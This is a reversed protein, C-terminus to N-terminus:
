VMNYWWKTYKWRKSHILQSDHFIWICVWPRTYSGSLFHNVVRLYGHSSSAGSAPYSEMKTVLPFHKTSRSMILNHTLKGQYGNIEKMAPLHIKSFWFCPIEYTKWLNKMTKGWEWFTFDSDCSGRVPEPSRNPVVPLPPRLKPRLFHRPSQYLMSISSWYNSHCSHVDISMWPGKTHDWLIQNTWKTKYVISCM